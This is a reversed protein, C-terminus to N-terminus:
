ASPAYVALREALYKTTYFLRSKVTGESCALIESIEKISFHEQFRLLFTSQKEAALENLADFLLTEFEADDIRQEILRPSREPFADMNEENAVRERVSMRRYENKCMNSAVTFIWASFSTKSQFMYPKEIIKLFIDQLFDQAKEEDHGLMRFFYNLLRQSYRGYLEDLADKNGRSLEIM